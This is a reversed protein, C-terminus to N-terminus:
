NRTVTGTCGKSTKKLDFTIEHEEALQGGVELEQDVIETCASGRMSSASGCLAFTDTCNSLSGGPGITCPNPPPWVWGPPACGQDGKVVESLTLGDLKPCKRGSASVSIIDYVLATGCPDKPAVKGQNTWFSPSCGLQRPNAYTVTFACDRAREMRLIRATKGSGFAGVSSPSLPGTPAPAGPVDEGLVEQRCYDASAPGMIRICDTLNKAERFPLTSSRRHESSGEIPARQVALASSGLEENTQRMGRGHKGTQQVVHTLEHAILRRGELMKPEFRGAGFVINHGVTYARANLKQASEEAVSGSHVRVRSFDHAFRQEMDRLLAPELPSGSSNLVRDVSSPAIDAQETARSAYRQIHPPTDHAPAGLIQDAVHDAEQELPDNSAGITLKRQLGSKEKACDECEGGSVTHNGCGCKRQLLGGPVPTTSTRQTLQSQARESM